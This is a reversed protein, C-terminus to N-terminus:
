RSSQRSKKGAQGVRSEAVASAATSVANGTAQVGKKVGQGVKTDAVYRAGNRVANGTARVGKKVSQGMRSKAIRKGAAQIGDVTMSSIKQGKNKAFSTATVFMTKFGTRRGMTGNGQLLVTAPTEIVIRQTAVEVGGVSLGSGEYFIWNGRRPRRRNRNLSRFLANGSEEALEKDDHDGVVQLEFAQMDMTDM